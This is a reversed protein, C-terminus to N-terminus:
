FIDRLYSENMFFICIKIKPEYKNISSYYLNQCRQDLEVKKIEVSKQRALSKLRISLYCEIVSKMLNYVHNDVNKFLNGHISVFTTSTKIVMFDFCYKKLHINEDNTSLISESVKAIKKLFQSPYTMFNDIDLTSILGAEKESRLSNICDSCDLKSGM